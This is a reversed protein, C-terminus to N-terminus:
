PCDSYSTLDTDCVGQESGGDLVYVCMCTCVCACVCAHACVCMCACVCM